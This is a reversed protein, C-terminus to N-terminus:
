RSKTICMSQPPESSQAWTEVMKFVSWLTLNLMVKHSNSVKCKCGVMKDGAQGSAAEEQDKMWIEAETPARPGEENGEVLM